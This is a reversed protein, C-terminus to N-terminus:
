KNERRKKELSIIKLIHGVDIFIGQKALLGAIENSSLDRNRYIFDNREMINAKRKKFKGITVGNTQYRKQLRSIAGKYTTRIYDIIDRESAYPSVRIAIPFLLDDSEDIKRSLPERKSRVLDAVLCLNSMEPVPFDIKNYFLYTKVTSDDLSHLHYKKCIKEIENELKKIMIEDNKLEWEKPPFIYLEASDVFGAQPIKYKHKAKKLFEQFDQRDIIERFYNLIKQHGQGRAVKEFYKDPDEQKM